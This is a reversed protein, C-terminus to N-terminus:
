QASSVQWNEPSSDLNRIEVSGLWELESLANAIQEKNSANFHDHIDSFYRTRGDILLEFIKRALPQTRSLRFRGFQFPMRIVPTRERMGTKDYRFQEIRVGLPKSQSDFAIDIKNFGDQFLPASVAIVGHQGDEHGSVTEIPDTHIHGHLYLVPFPSTRLFHRLRGSNVMESYTSVRPVMQPLLNHHGVVVPVFNHSNGKAEIASFKRTLENIISAEIVPADIRESLADIFDKDWEAVSDKPKLNSLIEQINTSIEQKVDEPIVRLEGCGICTNIGYIDVEFNGHALQLESVEEVSNQSFGADLLAKEFAKFKKYANMRFSKTPKAPREVDHNGPVFLIKGDIEDPACLYDAIRGRLYKACTKMSPVDSQTTLDGMFVMADCGQKAVEACHRSVIDLRTERGSMVTPDPFSPDKNDIKPTEAQVSPFHVDGVQIITITDQM